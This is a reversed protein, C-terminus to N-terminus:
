GFLGPQIENERQTEEYVRDVLLDAKSYAQVALWDCRENEPHGAHGKVWVWRVQHRHLLEDLEQWLDPNLLKGKGTKRWKKARWIDLWGNKIADVIYKSDSHMRVMSGDPIARLGAIVGMLEMRNNTTLRYGQSLERLQGKNMIVVGYGGRGPNGSCAGDSYINILKTEPNEKIM